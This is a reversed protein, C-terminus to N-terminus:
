SRGGRRAVRREFLDREHRLVEAAQALAIDEPPRPFLHALRARKDGVASIAAEYAEYNWTPRRSM